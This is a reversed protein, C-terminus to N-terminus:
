ILRILGLYSSVVVLKPNLEILGCVLFLDNYTHFMNQLQTSSRLICFVINDSQELLLFM